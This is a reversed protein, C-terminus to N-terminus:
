IDSVKDLMIDSPVGAGSKLSGSTTEPFDTDKDSALPAFPVTIMNM